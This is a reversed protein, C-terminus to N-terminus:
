QEGEGAQGCQCAPILGSVAMTVSDGRSLGVGWALHAVVLVM